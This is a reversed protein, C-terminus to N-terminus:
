FNRYVFFCLILFCVGRRKKNESGYGHSKMDDGYIDDDYEGQPRLSQMRQQVTNQAQEYVMSRMEQLASSLAEQHRIMEDIAELNPM